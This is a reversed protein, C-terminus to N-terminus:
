LNEYLLDKKKHKTLIVFLISLVILVADVIWVIIERTSSPVDYPISDVLQKLVSGLRYGALAIRDKCQTRVKEFYDESPWGYMPTDYGVKVAVDYSENHWKYPEYTKLDFSKGTFRSEPFEKVFNTANSSFEDRFKPILPNYINYLLGASDWLFHINNCASGYVCNLKYGNGGADGRRFNDNTFLAVNHHPTHVDAVFHLISRLHFAWVWPDTTTPNTLTRWADELYTTINYTPPPIEVNDGKVIPGDSFHWLGMVDLKYSDKLDDQWTTSETITQIPLQGYRLIGEFKKRESSSLMNEAIRGIM